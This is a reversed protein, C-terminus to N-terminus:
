QAVQQPLAIAKALQLMASARTVEPQLADIAAVIEPWNRSEVLEEIRTAARRLSEAGVQAASGRMAQALRRVRNRDKSDAANRLEHQREVATSAFLSAIKQLLEAGGMGLVFATAKRMEPPIDSAAVSTVLELETEIGSM